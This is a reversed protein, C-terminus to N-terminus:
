PVPESDTALFYKAKPSPGGPNVRPKVHGASSLIRRPSDLSEAVPSNGEKAPRELGRRRIQGKYSRILRGVVGFALRETQAKGRESAAVSPIVITKEEEPYKSTETGRTHRRWGIYEPTTSGIVGTPKGM